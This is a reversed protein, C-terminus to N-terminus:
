FPISPYIRKMTLTKPYSPSFDPGRDLDNQSSAPVYSVRDKHPQDLIRNLRSTGASIAINNAKAISHKTSDSGVKPRRMLRNNKNLESLDDKFGTKLM